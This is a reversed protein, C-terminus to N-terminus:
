TPMHTTIFEQFVDMREDSRCVYNLLKLPLKDPFPTEKVCRVVFHSM